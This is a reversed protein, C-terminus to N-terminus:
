GIYAKKTSVPRKTTRRHKVFGADDDDHLPAFSAEEAVLHEDVVLRM